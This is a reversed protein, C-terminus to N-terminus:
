HVSGAPGAKGDPGSVGAEAFTAMGTHCALAAKLVPITLAAGSAEGLRMGFEFLPQKGIAQLLRTHGPEASRHAVICHDLAKPDAKYLVAAAATCAFGDLVVPVRALRAAIVAGVIAALEQGGVCRLAEFPDTAATPNAALGAAVVAAKRRIGEADVGTGPGVWDEANGGFLALCLASASTTNGIGMEGLCLLHLGPEVAMMGYAVARACEAEGMAPGLTFDSTPHELDMEYVRLDADAAKALQNVAAQDNVFAQVMQGTVAPPYASVGLSAVGHAGAFVAIRPHTLEPPTRGQWAALWEVLTELRGLSGRPKLLNSERQVAATAAELDPGPLEPLVRRIEDLTPTDDAAM